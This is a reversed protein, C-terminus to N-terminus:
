RKKLTYNGQKDDKVLMYGEKLELKWGSGSAKNGEITMPYGVNVQNWNTSILAAREVDLIGWDDTIRIIPYVIGFSELPVMKTYDFSMNMNVLPLETHASDILEKKYATLQKLKNEQRATEEAIILKGNYQEATNSVYKPLDPHFKIDFARQFYVSLNTKSNIERNWNKKISSLLYGYVPITEYTFSRIYSPSSVFYEVRNTFNSRIEQKSRGSMMVGSFECIGENLELLNETSDAGPYLSRRYSRFALANAIHLKLEKPSDTLVAKQLAELELRLYIRGDKKDLHNNDPNYAFFGLAKQARHFLEHTLLNIRNNKNQSLPLMIMAWHVGSWQVSTNSINVQKPLTGTFIKGDAKLLGTSDPTNAFVERTAPNVLLIPAYLDYNWLNFNQKAVEKVEEFYVAATDTFNNTQSYCLNTIALFVFSFIFSMVKKMRRIEAFKLWTMDGYGPM